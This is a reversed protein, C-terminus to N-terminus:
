TPQNQVDHSSAPFIDVTSHHTLRREAHNILYRFFMVKHASRPWRGGARVKTEPGSVPQIPRPVAKPGGVARYRQVGPLLRRAREAYDTMTDVPQPPQLELAPEPGADPLLGFRPGLGLGVQRDCM